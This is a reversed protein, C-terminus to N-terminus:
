ASNLFCVSVHEILALQHAKGAYLLQVYKYCSTTVAITLPTSLDLAIVRLWADGLRASSYCTM